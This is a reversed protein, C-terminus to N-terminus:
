SSQPCCRKSSSALILNSVLFYFGSALFGSFCSEDWFAGDKCESDVEEESDMPVGFICVYLVYGTHQQQDDSGFHHRQGFDFDWRTSVLLYTTDRFPVRFPNVSARQGDSSM